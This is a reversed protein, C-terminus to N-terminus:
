YIRQKESVGSEATKLVPSFNEKMVQSALLINLIILFRLMLLDRPTSTIDTLITLNHSSERTLGIDVINWFLILKPTKGSLQFYDIM